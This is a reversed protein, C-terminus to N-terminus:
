KTLKSVASDLSDTFFVTNSKNSEFIFDQLSRSQYKAFDGVIALRVRYNSFKQLVEGALRTKLDFFDSHLNREHIIIRDCETAILDGFIDLVDQPRSIIFEEDTLEAVPIGTHLQHIKLEM